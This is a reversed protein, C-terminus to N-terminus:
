EAVEILDLGIEFFCQYFQQVSMVPEAWRVFYRGTVNTVAEGRSNTGSDADSGKWTSIDDNEM